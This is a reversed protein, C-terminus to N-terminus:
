YGLMGNSIRMIYMKFMRGTSYELIIGRSERANGNRLGPTGKGVSQRRHAAVLVM